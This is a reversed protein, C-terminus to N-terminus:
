KMRGEIAEAPDDSYLDGNELHELEHQLAERQRKPCVRSNIYICPFDVSSVIAGDVACNPFPVCRVIYDQGEVLSSM